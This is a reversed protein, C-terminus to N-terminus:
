DLILFHAYFRVNYKKAIARGKQTKVMDMRLSIFNKEIFKVLEPERLVISDMMISGGSWGAYCNFFIPKHKQASLQMAEELTTCYNIRKNKDEKAWGLIAILCLLITLINKM